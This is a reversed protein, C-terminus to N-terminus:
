GDKLILKELASLRKELEDIRKAQRRILPFAAAGLRDYAVGELAGNEGRLLFPELGLEELEEAVVGPIRKLPGAETVLGEDEPHETFDALQEAARKDFWTRARVKELADLQDETLDEIALKAARVSTSRYLTGSTNVYCNGANTTTWMGEVQFYTSAGSQKLGARCSGSPGDVNEMFPGFTSSSTRGQLGLQAGQIFYNGYTSGSSLVLLENNDMVVRYGGDPGIQFPHLSSTESADDTATLHLRAIEAVGQDNEIAVKKWSNWTGAYRTRVWVDRGLYQTFKQFIQSGNFGRTVELLGAQAVPYNTGAAANATFPQHYAGTQEFNNLNRGPATSIVDMMQVRGGIVGVLILQRNHIQVLVREGLGASGLVIPDVPVPASDGDLQVRVPNEGTVMGFRFVDTPEVYEPLLIDLNRM